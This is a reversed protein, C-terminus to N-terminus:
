KISAILENLQKRAESIEKANGRRLAAEFAVIYRDIVMRVDGTSQEYAQEAMYLALKNEEQERPSIKLFSLEELRKAAQEETLGMEILKAKDM